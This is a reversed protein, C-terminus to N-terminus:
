TKEKKLLLIQLIYILNTISEKKHTYQWGKTLNFISSKLIINFCLSKRLVVIKIGRHKRSLVYINPFNVSM